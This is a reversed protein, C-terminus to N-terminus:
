QRSGRARLALRIGWAVIIVLGMPALLLLDIRIDLNPPMTAEYTVYLAIALLPLYLSWRNRGQRLRWPVLSLLMVLVIGYFCANLLLNRAPDGVDLLM